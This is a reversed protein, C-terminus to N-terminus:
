PAAGAVARASKDKALPVLVLDALAERVREATIARALEPDLASEAVEGDGAEVGQRGFPTKSVQNVFAIAAKELQDVIGRAKRSLFAYFLLSPIAVYLGYETTILAESIGSSLSKADGTGFVTMLTFTNMIGTVTGLLGLLPAASASIAVFPLLAHLRLKTALVSEYMVEEVLQSPEGLHEVGAKLMRGAPGRMANAAQLAGPLDRSAVAALLAKVQKKAPRRVFMLAIWKGLAILLAAGGLLFIPVMVPGGKQVHEWLTEQTAEIKHASGLTPDFPLWGSADAVVQAAAQADTPAGYPIIAPKLSGLRQEASGSVAGDKSAFIAAPGVLVFNGEHVLGGQDAATGAFRTGGLAEVLRAVSVNVLAMQAAFVKQEALSGNEAALKAAALPEAYRELEAVQLRSEFNRVYEGLLNGLYAAEDQRTRIETRLNSLDLTRSDVLRSKAQLEQRVRALEGELDSLRRALPIKENAIEERLRGLEALSAELQQQLSGAAETFSRRPATPDQALTVAALLLPLLFASRTPRM